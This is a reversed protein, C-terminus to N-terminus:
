QCTFQGTQVVRAEIPGDVVPKFGGLENSWIYLDAEEKAIFEDDAVQEVAEPLDRTETLTSPPVPHRNLGTLM